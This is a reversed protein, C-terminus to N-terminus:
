MQKIQSENFYLRHKLFTQLKGKKICGYEDKIKTTETILHRKLKITARHFHWPKCCKVMIM